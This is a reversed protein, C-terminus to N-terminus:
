LKGASNIIGILKVSSELWTIPKFNKIKQYEDELSFDVGRSINLIENAWREGNIPNIFKALNQSCEKHVSIDSCFVPVGLSLSEVIPLGWGESFSPFFLAKSEKLINIVDIDGLSNFENVYARIAPSNDLMRFTDENAWGRRGIINLKPLDTIGQAILMRYANLITQHNKRPEITCVMTIQNLIERENHNKIKNKIFVDSVGCEVVYIPSYSLELYDLLAIVQDKVANSITIIQSNNGVIGTLIKVHNVPTKKDWIYEPFEVPILDYVLYFCKLNLAKLLKAHELGDPITIYSFNLYINDVSGELSKRLNNCIKNKRNIYTASLDRRLKLDIVEAELIFDDDEIINEIWKSYLLKILRKFLDSNLEVLYNSRNGDVVEVVGIILDYSYYDVLSRLYEIETRAIGAPTFSKIKSVIHSVDYFIFSKKIKDM